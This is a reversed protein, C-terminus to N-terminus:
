VPAALYLYGCGLFGQLCSRFSIPGVVDSLSFELPEGRGESGGGEEVETRASYGNRRADSSCAWSEHGGAAPSRRSSLEGPQGFLPRLLAPLSPALRTEDCYQRNGRRNGHPESDDDQFRASLLCSTLVHRDAFPRPHDESARSPGFPGPLSWRRHSRRARSEPVSRRWAPRAKGSRRCRRCSRGVSTSRTGWFLGAPSDSVASAARVSASLLAGCVRLALAPRRPFRRAFRRGLARRSERRRGADGSTGGELDSLPGAERNREQLLPPRDSGSPGQRHIDSAGTPLRPADAIAALRGPLRRPSASLM